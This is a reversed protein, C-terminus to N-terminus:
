QLNLINRVLDSYSLLTLVKEGSPLSKWTVIQM